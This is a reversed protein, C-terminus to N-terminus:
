EVPRDRRDVADARVPQLDALQERPCVLRFALSRRDFLHDEGRVGGELALCGRHVQRLPKFPRDAEDAPDGSPQGDATVEFVGVLHGQDACELAPAGDSTDFRMPSIRSRSAFAAAAATMPSTTYPASTPGNPTGPLASNASRDHSAPAPKMRSTSLLGIQGSGRGAVRNGSTQCEDEPDGVM